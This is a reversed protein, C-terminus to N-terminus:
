YILIQGNKIDDLFFLEKKLINKYYKVHNQADELLLTDTAYKVSAISDFKHVFYEADRFKKEHIKCWIIKNIYKLDNKCDKELALQYNEVALDM